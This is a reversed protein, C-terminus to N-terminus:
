RGQGAATLVERHEGEGGRGQVGSVRARQHGPRWRNQGGPARGGDGYVRFDPRSRQVRGCTLM